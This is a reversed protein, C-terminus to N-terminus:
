INKQNQLFQSPSVDTVKKFANAFKSQSSFGAEEALSAIKYKLYKPESRIKAIIYNIRLENIYNNFDKEKFRNIAYSLYKTNTECYTALYPLSITNRTYLTTKEFKELKALIKLETAVPMMPLQETNNVARQADTIEKTEIQTKLEAFSQQVDNFRIITYTVVVM